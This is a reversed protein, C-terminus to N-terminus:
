KLTQVLLTAVFEDGVAGFSFQHRNPYILKLREQVNRLGIGGKEKEPDFYKPSHISNRVEYSVTNNRCNLNVRIWSKESMSIGHKFANEILPILLMPAINSNCNYDDIEEEIVIDPLTQIRLKQLSIYNKLYEIETNVPIFDVDIQHLMFRMMDGLKQIGEATRGAKEMLATGYLTNLVNFLFHPNIQSRLFKLDADSRVLEEKIGRVQLIKDKRQHYYLWALPTVVLLELTLLPIFFERYRPHLLTFPIAFIFVSLFLKMLFSFHFMSKEGSRPFLWYINSIFLLISPPIFVFYITLLIPYDPKALFLMLPTFSFYATALFTLQNTVLIRYEKGEAPKELYYIIYERLGELLTLVLVMTMATTFGAFLDQLARDNYGFMALIDFGAFGYNYFHPHAYYTIVNIGLALLYATAIVKLVIWCAKKIFDVPKDNSSLRRLAPIVLRAISIYAVYLLLVQAIQPILINIYLNFALNNKLFPAVYLSQLEAPTMLIMNLVYLIASFVTIVTALIFEHERWRVKM